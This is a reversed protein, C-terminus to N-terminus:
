DNNRLTLTKDCGSVATLMKRHRPDYFAQGEDSCLLKLTNETERTQDTLPSTLIKHVPALVRDSIWEGCLPETTLFRYEPIQSGTDSDQQKKKGGM